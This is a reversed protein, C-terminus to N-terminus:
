AHGMSLLLEVVQKALFDNGLVGPHLSASKRTGTPVAKPNVLVATVGQDQRCFRAWLTFMAPGHMRGTGKEHAAAALDTEHGTMGIVDLALRRDIQLIADKNRRGLGTLRELADRHVGRLFDFNQILRWSLKLLLGRRVRQRGGSRFNAAVQHLFVRSALDDSSCIAGVRM